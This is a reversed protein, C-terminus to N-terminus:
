KRYLVVNSWHTMYERGDTFRIYVYGSKSYNYDDLVGVEHIHEDLRVQAMWKGNHVEGAM